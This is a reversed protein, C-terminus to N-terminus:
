IKDLFQITLDIGCKSKSKLDFDASRYHASLYVAKLPDTVPNSISLCKGAGFTGFVWDNLDQLTIEQEDTINGQKVFVEYYVGIYVTWTFKGISRNENWIEAKDDEPYFFAAPLISPPNIYGIAVSKGIDRQYGNAKTIKALDTNIAAIITQPINM